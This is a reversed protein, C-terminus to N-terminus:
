RKWINADGWVLGGHRQEFLRQVIQASVEVVVLEDAVEQAEGPAVVMEGHFNSSAWLVNAEVPIAVDQGTLIKRQQFAKSYLWFGTKLYEEKSASM